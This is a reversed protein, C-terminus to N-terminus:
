ALIMAGYNDEAGRTVSGQFPRGDLRHSLLLPLGTHRASIRNQGSGAAGNGAGFGGKFEYEQSFAHGNKKLLRTYRAFDPQHTSTKNGHM